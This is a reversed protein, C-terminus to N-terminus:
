NKEDQDQSFREAVLLALERTNFKINLRISEDLIQNILNERYSHHNSISIKSEHWDYSHNLTSNIGFYPSTLILDIGYGKIEPLNNRLESRGHMNKEVLLIETNELGIMVIPDHTTVIFFLNPFMKRFKSIIGMKWKPHLHLEIEDILVIGTFFQASTNDRIFDEGFEKFISYIIHFISIAGSSASFLEIPQQNERQLLINNKTRILGENPGLELIFNIAKAAEFFYADTELLLRAFHPIFSKDTRRENVYCINFQAEKEPYFHSGDVNLLIESYDEQSYYSEYDFGIRTPIRDTFNYEDSSKTIKAQYNKGGFSSILDLLTTKGLGNDGILCICSNKELDISTNEFCRINEFTIRKFRKEASYSDKILNLSDIRGDHDEILDKHLPIKKAYSFDTNYDRRDSFNKMGWIKRYLFNPIEHPYKIENFINSYLEPRFDFKLMEFTSNLRENGIGLLAEQSLYEHVPELTPLVINPIKSLLNQFTIKKGILRDIRYEIKIFISCQYCIPQINRVDQCLSSFELNKDIPHLPIVKEADNFCYICKGSFFDFVASSVYKINSLYEEYEPSLKIDKQERWQSSNYAKIFRAIGSNYNKFDSIISSPYRISIPIM